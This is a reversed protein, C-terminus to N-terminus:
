YRAKALSVGRGQPGGGKVPPSLRVQGGTLPPPGALPRPTQKALSLNNKLWWIGEILIEM